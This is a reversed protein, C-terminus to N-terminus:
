GKVNLGKLKWNWIGGSENGRKKEDAMGERRWSWEIRSGEWLM